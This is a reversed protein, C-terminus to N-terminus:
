TPSHTQAMQKTWHQGLHPIQAAGGEQGANSLIRASWNVGM